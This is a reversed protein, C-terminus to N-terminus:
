ARGSLLSQPRGEPGWPPTYLRGAALWGLSARQSVRPKQSEQLRSSELWSYVPCHLRAVGNGDLSAAM